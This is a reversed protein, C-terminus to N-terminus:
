RVMKTRGASVSDSLSEDRLRVITNRWMTLAAELRIIQVRAHERLRRRNTERDRHARDYDIDPLDLMGAVLLGLDYLALHELSEGAQHQRMDQIQRISVDNAYDGWGLAFTDPAENVDGMTSFDFLIM